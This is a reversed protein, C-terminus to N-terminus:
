NKHFLWYKGSEQKRNVSIVCMSTSDLAMVLVEKYIDVCSLMTSSQIVHGLIVSKTSISTRHIFCLLHTFQQRGIGWFVEAFHNIFALFFPPIKYDLSVDRSVFLFWRNLRGLGVTDLLTQLSIQQVYFTEFPMSDTSYFSSVSCTCYRFLLLYLINMQVTAM